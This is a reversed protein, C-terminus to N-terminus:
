LDSYLLARHKLAWEFHQLDFDNTICYTVNEVNSNCFKPSFRLTIECGHWTRRLKGRITIDMDKTYHRLREFYFDLLDRAKNALQESNSPTHPLDMNEFTRTKGGLEDLM